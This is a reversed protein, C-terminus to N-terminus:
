VIQTLFPNRNRSFNASHCHHPQTNQCLLEPFHPQPQLSLMEKGERPDWSRRRGARRELPLPDEWESSSLEEGGGYGNGIM